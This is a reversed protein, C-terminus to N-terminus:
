ETPDGEGPPLYILEREVIERATQDAQAARDLFDDWGITGNNPSVGEMLGDRVAMYRDAAQNGLETFFWEPDTLGALSVPRHTQWHAMAMRGWDNM